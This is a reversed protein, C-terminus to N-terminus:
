NKADWPKPGADPKKNSKDYHAQHTLRMRTALASFARSEREQMRLLRDLEDVNVPEVLCATVLDGIRRAATVHRCYGVLM